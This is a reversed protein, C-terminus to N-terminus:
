VEPPQYRLWEKPSTFIIRNQKMRNLSAPIVQINSGCHLGCARVALIPIIHDVDWKIGTEVCRQYALSCAEVSVFEDFESFWSPVAKRIAARRKACASRFKEPNKQRYKLNASFIAAKNRNRRARDAMRVSTLNKKRYRRAGANVQQSNDKRYQSQYRRAKERNNEKYHRLVMIDAEICLSCRCQCNSTFRPGIGGNKCPKGTFYFKQGLEKAEKRTSAKVESTKIM